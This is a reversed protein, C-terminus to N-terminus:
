RPPSCSPRHGAARAQEYLPQSKALQSQLEEIRSASSPHTSLFEPPEGGGAAMMARWLEVSAAPNFGSRAMLQQGIVDAESEQTRSYPLLIGLQAGVGLLGM